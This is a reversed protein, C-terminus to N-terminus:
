ARWVARRKQSGGPGTYHKDDDKDGHGGYHIILLCPAGLTSMRRTLLVQQQTIFGRVEIQSDNKPIPYLETEFNLEKFFSEVKRAEKVYDELRDSNEWYLIVAKVAAYRVLPVPKEILKALYDKDGDNALPEMPNVPLVSM